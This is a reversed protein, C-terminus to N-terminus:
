RANKELDAAHGLLREAEIEGKEILTLVLARLLTEGPLAAIRRLEAAPGKAEAAPRVDLSKVPGSLPRARKREEAQQYYLGLTKRVSGKPALATEVPRTSFFQVEDVAAFDDPDSLALLVSGARRLPVVQHKELVARPIKAMLEEDVEPLEPDVFHMKQQHAVYQALIPERVYHLKTLIDRIDGGTARQMELAHKLQGEGLLGERVLSAGLAPGDIM